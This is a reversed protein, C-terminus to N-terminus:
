ASNREARAADYASFHGVWAAYVSMLGVWLISNKWWVVTAFLLPGGWIAMMILHFRVMYKPSPDPLKM